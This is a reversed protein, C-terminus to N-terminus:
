RFLLSVKKTTELYLSIVMCEAHLSIRFFSNEGTPYLMPNLTPSSAPWVPICQLHFILQSREFFSWDMYRGVCNWYYTLGLKEKCCSLGGDRWDCQAGRYFSCFVGSLQLWIGHQRICDRCGGHGAPLPVIRHDSCGAYGKHALWVRAPCYCNGTICCLHFHGM